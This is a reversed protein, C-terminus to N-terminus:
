CRLWRKDGRAVCSLVVASIVQSPQQVFDEDLNIIM